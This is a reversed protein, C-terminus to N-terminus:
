RKIYIKWSRLAVGLKGFNPSGLRVFLLRLVALLFLARRRGEEEMVVGGRAVVSALFSWCTQARACGRGRRFSLVFFYSFSFGSFICCVSWWARPHEAKCKVVGFVYPMVARYM